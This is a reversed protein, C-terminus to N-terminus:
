FAVAFGAALGGKVPAVGFAVQAPPHAPVAMSGWRPARRGAGLAAGLLGYAVASYGVAEGRTCISSDSAKPGSCDDLPLALGLLAGVAAGTVAYRPWLRREGVQAELGGISSWALDVRDRERTRLTLGEDGVDEVMGVIQHSAGAPRVRVLRGRELLPPEDAGARGSAAAVLGALVMSLIRSGAM